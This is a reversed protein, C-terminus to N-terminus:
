GQSESEGAVCMDILDHFGGSLERLANRDVAYCSKQGQSTRCVLGAEHLVKLHQSVTSQALDFQAVVEKCCCAQVGSLHRLIAIRAPHGLAAM